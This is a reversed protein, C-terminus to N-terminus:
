FLLGGKKTNCKLNIESINFSLQCKKSLSFPIWRVDFLGGLGSSSSMTMERLPAIQALM